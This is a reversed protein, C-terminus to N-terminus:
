SGFYGRLMEDIVDEELLDEAKVSITRNVPGTGVITETKGSKIFEAVAAAKAQEENIVESKAESYRSVIRGIEEEIDENFKEKKKPIFKREPLKSKGTHNNHGDAKPVQNKKFIGVELKTDDTKKFTLADLLDGNLEMNPRLDSSVKSKEKEYEKDLSKKWSGGAVPSELNGINTLIEEVLFNGIEKIAKKAQTKNGKFGYKKIDIEKVLKELDIAM